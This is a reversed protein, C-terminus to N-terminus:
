FERENPPAYGEGRSKTKKPPRNGGFIPESDRPPPRGMMEERRRGERNHKEAQKALRRNERELQAAEAWRAEQERRYREAQEAEARRQTNERMLRDIPTEPMDLTGQPPISTQSYM